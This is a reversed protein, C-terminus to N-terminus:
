KGKQIRALLEELNNLGRTFGDKFGSKVQAELHALSDALIDNTVLTVGQTEGFSIVWTSGATAADVKGNEDCFHSRLSFSKMPDIKLFTRVSWRKAGEPSVMAFLWKGGEIFDMSKTESKWPRPAFWQDLIEAETWASWVLALPADFSREVKVKLNEKDVMFNFINERTM